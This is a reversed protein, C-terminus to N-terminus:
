RRLGASRGQRGDTRSRTREHTRLRTKRTKAKLLTSTVQPDVFGLDCSIERACRVVHAALEDLRPAIREDPGWVGVAAVARGDRDRIAAGVGAVGLRFEGRNVAYGRKRTLDLQDALARPKHITSSTYAKLKPLLGAIFDSPQWALLAKGTGVCHAPIRSGIKTTAQIAQESEVKDIYVVDYGDLVALLSSEGTAKVLRQMHVPAVAKVDIRSMMMAGLSWLKFTLTYTKDATRRLYGEAELTTLLRHVTSTSLGTLAALDTLRYGEEDEALAELIAMARDVAQVTGAKAKHAASGHPADDTM